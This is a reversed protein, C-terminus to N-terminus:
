LVVGKARMARLHDFLKVKRALVKRYAAIEPASGPAHGAWAHVADLLDAKLGTLTSQDRPTTM